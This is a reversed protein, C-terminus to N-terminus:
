SCSPFTRWYVRRKREADSGDFVVNAVLSLVRFPPAGKYSFEDMWSSLRRRPFKPPSIHSALTSGEGERGRLVKVENAHGLPLMQKFIFDFVECMM